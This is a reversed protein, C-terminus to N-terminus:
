TLKSKTTLIKVQYLPMNKSKFRSDCCFNDAKTTQYFTKNAEEFLLTSGTQDQDLSNSKVSVNVLLTIEYICSIVYLGIKDSLLLLIM